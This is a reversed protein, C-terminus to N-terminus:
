MALREGLDTSMPDRLNPGEVYYPYVSEKLVERMSVKYLDFLSGSADEGARVSMNTTIWTTRRAAVRERLLTELIRESWSSGNKGGRPEKGLDDIVLFDVITARQILSLGEADEYDVDKGMASQVLTSATVFLVSAGTRRVEKAVYCAAATKGRGNKGWLMLGEGRDLWDHVSRLYKGVQERLDPEMQGYKVKWFRQPLRMLELHATTLTGRFGKVRM